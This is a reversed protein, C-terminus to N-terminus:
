DFTVLRLVRPHGAFQQTFRQRQEGFAPLVVKRLRSEKVLRIWWDDRESKFTFPLDAFSVEELSRSRVIAEKVDKTVKAYPMFRISRLSTSQEVFPAVMSAGLHGIHLAEPDLEALVEALRDIGAPTPDFPPFVCVARVNRAARAIALLSTSSRGSVRLNRVRAALAPERDLHAAVCEAHRRSVLLVSSYLLPTGVRAWQKCVLLLECAPAINLCTRRYGMHHARSEDFFDSPPLLLCMELITVLLEEPLDHIHM